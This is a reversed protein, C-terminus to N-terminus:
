QPHLERWPPPAQLWLFSYSPQAGAKCHFICTRAEASGLIGSASSLAAGLTGCVPTSRLVRLGFLFFGWFWGCGLSQGNAVRGLLPAPSRAFCFFFDCRFHNAVQFSCGSAVVPFASDPNPSPCQSPRPDLCPSVAGSGLPAPPLSPGVGWCLAGLKGWPSQYQPVWYVM